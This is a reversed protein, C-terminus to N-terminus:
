KCNTPTESSAPAMAIARAIVTDGDYVVLEVCYSDGETINLQTQSLRSPMNPTVRTRGGQSSNTRGSRGQKAVTLTYRLDAPAPAEVFGTFSTMAGNRSVDIWGRVNDASHSASNPVLTM